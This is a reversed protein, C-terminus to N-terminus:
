GHDRDREYRHDRHRYQEYGRNREYNQPQSYYASNSDATHDTWLNNACDYVWTRTDSWPYRAQYEAETVPSGTAPDIIYNTDNPGTLNLGCAYEGPGAAPRRYPQASGYGYPRYGYPRYGYPQALAASSGLLVLSALAIKAMTQM